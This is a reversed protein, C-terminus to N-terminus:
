ALFRLDNYDVTIMEKMNCICSLYETGLNTTAEKPLSITAGWFLAVKIYQHWAYWPLQEAAGM